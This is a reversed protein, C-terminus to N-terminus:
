DLCILAEIQGFGPYHVVGDEIVGVDSCQHQMFLLKDPQALSLNYVTCTITSQSALLHLLHLLLMDESVLHQASNHPAVVESSLVQTAQLQCLGPM